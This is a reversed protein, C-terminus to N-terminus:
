WSMIPRRPSSLIRKNNKKRLVWVCVCLRRSSCIKIKRGGSSSSCSIKKMYMFILTMDLSSTTTTQPPACFFISSFIKTDRKMTECASLYVLCKYNTLYRQRSLKKFNKREHFENQEAISLRTHSISFTKKRPLRSRHPCFVVRSEFIIKKNHIFDKRIGILYSHKRSRRAGDWFFKACVEIM